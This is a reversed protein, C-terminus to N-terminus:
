LTLKGVPQLDVYAGLEQFSYVNLAQLRPEIMRRVYRRIDM